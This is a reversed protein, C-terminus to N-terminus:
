AAFAGAGRGERQSPNGQHVDGLPARLGRRAVLVHSAKQALRALHRGQGGKRAAHSLPRAPLDPGRGPPAGHRRLREGHRGRGRHRRRLRPLRGCAEQRTGRRRPKAGAPRRACLLRKERGAPFRSTGRCKPAAPSCWRTSSRSFSTPKVCKKAANHVGAEFKRDGAVTSLEFKVGEAELQGIRREVVAKDLKFGPIGFRLLGGPREAKEYVTVDHGVRALQQACALGAPGSGVVAVRRGTKVSAPEPKVWGAQWAHDIIAREISRIGVASDELYYQTCGAECIAPCIRSTFEPFSNTSSLCAWAREWDGDRVLRNWDVPRNHLPCANSCFPTGCHLCRLSQAHVEEDTLPITFDGFTKIREEVPLHGFEIRQLKESM